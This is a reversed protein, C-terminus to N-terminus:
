AAIAGTLEAYAAPDFRVERRCRCRMGGFCIDGPFPGSEPLYSGQAGSCASCTSQDDLAIYDVVWGTGFEGSIEEFLSNLALGARGYMEARNAIAEFSMPREDKAVAAPHIEFQKKNLEGLAIRDAFRALFAMQEDAAPQMLALEDVTLMRGAGVIANEVMNRKILDAMGSQWANVDGSLALTSALRRSQQKFEERLAEKLGQTASAPVALPQKVSYGLNRLLRILLSTSILLIPILDSDEQDEPLDAPDLKGRDFALLLEAARRETIVKDRVCRTVFVLLQDHTM